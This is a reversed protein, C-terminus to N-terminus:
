LYKVGKHAELNIGESRMHKVLMDYMSKVLERRDCGVYSPAVKRGFYINALNYESVRLFRRFIHYDVVSPRSFFFQPVDLLAAEFTATGSTTVLLDCNKMTQYRNEGVVCARGQVTKKLDRAQRPDHVILCLETGQLQAGLMSMLEMIVPMNREIQSPRSGPMFGIRKTYDNRKYVSLERILPNRIQVTEIGIGRYFIAEFPFVTIVVDVWKKIFCKRFTGWAWIQPPLYYYVKIGLKRAYWCLLLNIGPYAVAVFTRPKVRYITRAIKRYFSYNNFASRLGDMLGFAMLQENQLVIDAGSERMCGGGVGFIRMKPFREKLQRILLGAYMDGSAEGACFFVPAEFLIHKM